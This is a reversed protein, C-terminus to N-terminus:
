FRTFAVLDLSVLCNMWDKSFTRCPFILLSLLYKHVLTNNPDFHHSLCFLFVLILCTKSQCFVSHRLVANHCWYKRTYDHNPIHFRYFMCTTFATYTISSFLSSQLLHSAPWGSTWCQQFLSCRWQFLLLLLLLYIIYRIIHRLSKLILKGGAKLLFATFVLFILSPLHYFSLHFHRKM